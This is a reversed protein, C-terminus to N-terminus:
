LEERGRARQAFKMPKVHILQTEAHEFAAALAIV